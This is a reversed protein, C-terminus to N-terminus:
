FDKYEVTGDSWKIVYYGHGSGDCDYIKEKSVIRNKKGTGRTKYDGAQVIKLDDKNGAIVEFKTKTSYLHEKAIYLKYYYDSDRKLSDTLFLPTYVKEVEGGSVKIYIQVNDWCFKEDLKGSVEIYGPNNQCETVNITTDSKVNELKSDIEICMGEIFPPETALEAINREAKELIVIDPKYKKMYGTINQPIGKSFYAHLFKNAMLPLLTNGFSDRFMLLVEKEENNETEIWANEIEGADTKYSFNEEYGYCYDLEPRATLPYLMKSLDGYEKKQKIAKADKYGDIGISKLIENCAILAGKQNWHSDRKLYLVENQNNFVSFLDLYAIDQEEMKKALLDISRVNSVKKQFYYPMNEGYLSNKNPPVTFLFKAGSNEVYNQVLSLNHAINIIKRDTMINKGLYDDVSDKYYLWGNTGVVVSDVNSVKFVKSQIEADISVLMQRFAFHDNFYEGLEKIFNQNWKGDKKIDPLKALERNETTVDTRNTVMCVFPFMCIIMCSIIFICRGANKM